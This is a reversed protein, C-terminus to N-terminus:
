GPFDPPTGNIPRYFIGESAEYWDGVHTNGQPDELQLDHPHPYVYGPDAVVRAVVYNNKIIAYTM